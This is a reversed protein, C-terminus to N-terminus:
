LQKKGFHLVKCKDLNFLMLWDESWSFLNKLDDRLKNVDEPTSVARFLKADDAFKLLQSCVAHDIDNVFILFLLPELVSGQTVSSVVDSWDSKCGNLVVRQKRDSLWNRIWSAVRGNIGLACVKLMLRCPPAKDFAKQFDLYIVDVPEGKDVFKSVYELFVLLNTLCSKRRMFGHQSNRILKFKDLHSTM